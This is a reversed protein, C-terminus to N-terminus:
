KGSLLIEHGLAVYTESMTLDLLMLGAEAFGPDTNVSIHHGSIVPPKCGAM